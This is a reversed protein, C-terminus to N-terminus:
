ILHFSTQVSDLPQCGDKTFQVIHETQCPVRQNNWEPVIDQICLEMAFCSNYELRVEGRGPIPDQEWPLGILPGPEHVFLGLSHSFIEPFPIDEDHASSLINELLQNGTLGQKFERMFITQLRNNTSLLNKLGMPSDTEDSHRVYALEQHDTFLGLYKIGVDCILLDGRRIIKDSLPHKRAESESRLIRFYPKFSQELGNDSCIQWFMWELDESTTVGPTISSPNFCQAIIQRAISSVHPYIDLENNTLTTAWRTCANEASTLRSVYKEPLTEVLQNFLNYTLGGAAWNVNGINIGIRTPDRKKIIESLLHWQEPHNGGEWPKEYLDKIDTMSLNIREVGNEPGRNFFILMQLIKPWTDMPIMTKYVPDLNDEQCIILWMDIDGDRLALPLVTDLRTRLIETTFEIQSRVPIINPLRSM